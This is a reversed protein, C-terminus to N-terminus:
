LPTTTCSYNDNLIAYSYEKSAKYPKFWPQGGSLILFNLKTAVGNYLVVFDSNSYIEQADNIRTCWMGPDNVYHDPISILTPMLITNGAITGNANFKWSLDNSNIFTSTGYKTFQYTTTNNYHAPASTTVSSSLSNPYTIQVNGNNRYLSFLITHRKRGYMGDTTTTEDSKNISGWILSMHNRTLSIYNTRKQVLALPTANTSTSIAFDTSFTTYSVGNDLSIGMNAKLVIGSTSSWAVATGGFNYYGVIFRICINTSDYSAQSIVKYNATSLSENYQIVGNGLPLKYYLTVLNASTNGAINSAPAVMASIASNNNGTYDTLGALILKDNLDQVLSVTSSFTGHTYVPSDWTFSSM